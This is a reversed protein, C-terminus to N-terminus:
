RTFMQRASDAPESVFARPLATQITAMASRSAGNGNRSM